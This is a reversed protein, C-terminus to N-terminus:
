KLWPLPNVAKGEDRLELYLREGWFSGTAGMAGLPEGTKVKTGVAVDIEALHAYISTYGMTHDLIVVKGLGRLWGTWAVYGWYIARVDNRARPRFPIMHIGKFTGEVRFKPHTRIGYRGIVDANRIPSALRGKTEAIYLRQRSPDTVELVKAELVEDLAEMERVWEAYFEAEKRIAEEVADREEHDWALEQTLYAIADKTNALNDRRRALDAKTRRWESLQLKYRQVRRRDAEYLRELAEIKAHYEGYSKSGMMVQTDAKDRIRIMTRLRQNVVAREADRAATLREFDATARDLDASLRAEWSQLTRLRRTREDIDRDLAETRELISLEPRLLRRIDERPTRPAPKDPAPVELTNLDLESAAPVPGDAAAGAAFLTLALVLAVSVVPRAARMM